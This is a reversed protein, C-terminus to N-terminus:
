ICALRHRARQLWAGNAAAPEFTILVELTYPIIISPSPFVRWRRATTVISSDCDKFSPRVCHPLDTSGRYVLTAMCCSRHTILMGLALPHQTPQSLLRATSRLYSPTAPRHANRNRAIFCM